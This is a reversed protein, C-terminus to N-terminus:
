VVVQGLDITIALHLELFHEACQIPPWEYRPTQVIALTAVVLNTKMIQKIGIVLTKMSRPGKGIMSRPLM